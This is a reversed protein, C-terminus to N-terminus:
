AGGRAMGRELAGIVYPRLDAAAIIRDVSGVREAREITHIADFEDAVERLKASRVQETVVRLRTRSGGGDGSAAAAKAEAVRPDGETRTRVDRAFVTAAAPAGGIVSAYSGEVAAIEMSETLAKSFVVFAGGHYRSVVVFVIPGVFNTVARGIEAGYELQWNRMSEPSGDFGSLNALVVLPRNGSTANIARATKRSSQPFLTGSTWAPPGYSPVFGRRPVAHSELGIMCVPVGGVTTDWVISTDADEWRRWRELPDADADSVARMVSRMDFPLKREPNLSQDFVDGVTTFTSGTVPTHPAERVDRDAPDSTQHRRPFREGPVVYTFSYHHLLVACAEPFSPAWYQAQGNPGMIRDYGGIGFNDDASVAGSFDLAQKGTLVMTSSPTMVLIGKTHMLMTAEANWYPQGGVNIGTVIVNVEGGTQTFEILRRLTLGIWDMNETGSDLAILAGSSVAYWEVPLSRERALALAANIRRCEPEALNGLGQTPDSLIAVRSMGDPYVDTFSTILGCVVHASNLGPERGVPVLREGADDLDLEEFEGAPFPSADGPKPTLMRIIEYPYPVGFRAATLIKQAYATLTRVPNPGPDAMRVTLGEGGLGELVLIQDLLSEEGDENSVPIAVHLVVKDLALGRALGQYTRALLHWEQPPVRWVPQVTIVLRNAVPRGRVPYTALATRMAALSALGMRGLAPYDNRGTSENRVPTLDRVEALAFLRHDKPNDRAVGDFLYVDEPSPLRRLVFNSLRWLDLRKGLMPHLNRYLLDEVFAGEGGRRFTLHQTREREPEEGRLSTVTLDLRHLPRGFDAAAILASVDRALDEIDQRVDDRWTVVEVVVEADAPVDALHRAIARAVDPLHDLPAFTIAVHVSRGERDYRAHVLELDGVTEADLERIQRIRYFRRLYAELVCQRFAAPDPGHFSPSQSSRWAELLLSRMPAACLVVRAIRDSRDQSNPSAALALVQERMERESEAVVANLLPENFFRYLVDRAADAVAPQRADTAAILREMRKRAAPTPTAGLRAANRLRRQLISVVVPSVEPVRSFSRYMWVTAHELGARDTLTTVGYRALARQLHERYRPPLGARDADLWQLFAHFYEQTNIQALNDPDSDLDTRPRYLVGIDAFLDLFADEDALLAQDAPDADGARREYAAALAKFAAQDLDYGLLFDSLSTFLDTPAPTAGLRALSTPDDAEPRAHQEEPPSPHSRIRLLPAGPETQTGPLVNVVTVDGGVPATVTTVMKMSELVAIPQGQEVHDGVGVLLSEVLAPWGARVVYGDERTLGHAVGDIELRLNDQEMSVTVRRREGAIAIRREFRSLREVDVEVNGGDFVRYRAAAIRDVRLRHHRGLYGLQVAGVREPHEPRGRSASARFASEVLALDAEYVEIAAVAVAVPDPRADLCGEARRAGLWGHPVPGAQVDPTRLIAVLESRNTPGHELVIRTRLLARQMRALAQDRDHGWATLVLVTPDTSPDVLDGVRRSGDVRVGTGAPPALLEVHGGTPVRGRSPDYALVRAEVAHGDPEPVSIPLPEGRQIRIQRGVFSAGTAEEILAHTPRGKPDVDVLGTRGDNAVDFRVVAAGLYAVGSLLRCAATSVADAVGDPLGPAPLEALLIQGDESVSVDRVGLVWITGVSDCLADVEVRRCSVAELTTSALPVDLTAALAALSSAHTLRAAVEHSPGIVTLGARECAALVALRDSTWPVEGLWVLDVDQASLEDAVREPAVVGEADPEPLGMVVDAERAYWPIANGDAHVVLTSMRPHDGKHNLDGVAALVRVVPEGHDLIALRTTDTM